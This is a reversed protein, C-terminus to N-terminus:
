RPIRQCEMHTRTPEAPLACYFGLSQMSKFLSASALALKICSRGGQPTVRCLEADIADANRRSDFTYRADPAEKVFDAVRKHQEPPPANVTADSRPAPIDNVGKHSSSEGTIYDSLAM